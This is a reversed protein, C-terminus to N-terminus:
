RRTKKAKAARERSPPGMARSKTAQGGGAFLAHSEDLWRRLLPLPLMTEGLTVKVWGSAGAECLDPSRAALARAEGLSDELKLRLSGPGFFAFAKGRVRVTRSQLKTGACAIGEDVGPHRRACALLDPLSARSRSAM